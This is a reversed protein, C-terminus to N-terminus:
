GLPMLLTQKEELDFQLADNWGFLKYFEGAMAIAMGASGGHLSSSTIRVTKEAVSGKCYSSSAGKRCIYDSALWNKLTIGIEVESSLVEERAMRASFEFVQSVIRLIELFHLKNDLEPRRRISRSHLFQGSRFLAWSEYARNGEFGIECRLAQLALERVIHQNVLM